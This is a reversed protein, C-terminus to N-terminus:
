SDSDGREEAASQPPTRAARPQLSDRPGVEDGALKEAAELETVCTTCRTRAIQYVQSSSSTCTTSRRTAREERVLAGDKLVQEAEDIYNSASTSSPSRGRLVRARRTTSSRRRTTPSRRRSTTPGCTPAGSSTTATPSTRITRSASRSRSRRRKGRVARRRRPRSRRARLRAQVLLERVQARDADRTGADVRDQGVRGEEQLGHALKCLIRHNTPDLQTPRSTSRSPATSTSTRRSTARTPSTSPRSTTAAAAPRFPSGFVRVGFAFLARLKM